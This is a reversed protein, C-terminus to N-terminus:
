AWVPLHRGFALAAATLVPVPLWGILPEFVRARTRCTDGTGTGCGRNRAIRRYMWRLLPKVGPLCALAFFIRGRRIVKALYVIADAGGFVIGRATIVRMEALLDEDHLGLAARVAPSQLPM